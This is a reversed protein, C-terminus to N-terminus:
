ASEFEDRSMIQIPQSLRDAWKSSFEYLKTISREFARRDDHSMYALADDGAAEFAENINEISRDLGNLIGSLGQPGQRGRRKNLLPVGKIDAATETRTTEDQRERAAERQSPMQGASSVEEGAALRKTSEFQDIINYANSRSFGFKETIYRAMSRYGLTKWVEHEDAIRLLELIRGGTEAHRELQAIIADTIELAESESLLVVDTTM